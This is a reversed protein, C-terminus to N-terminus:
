RGTASLSFYRHKNLALVVMVSDVVIAKPAAL